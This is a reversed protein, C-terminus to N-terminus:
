YKVYGVNMDVNGSIGPVSGLSSYQWITVRGPGTYQYGLSPTYDRYQAIWVDDTSFQSMDIKNELWYKNAYIMFKYGNAEVISKFTKIIATLESSSLDGQTEGDEIDYAVPYDITYGSAELTKLTNVVRNAETRAESVNSAYSYRYVGISIGNKKANKANAYFQDDVTINSMTGSLIRLMAFEVGSEKVQKWDITGQWASVDIGLNQNEYVTFTITRSIVQGRKDKIALTFTHLGVGNTEFTYTNDSSYNQVTKSIGNYTETYRYEYGGYGQTANGTLTVQIGQSLLSSSVNSTLTGELAKGPDSIINIMCTSSIMQGAADRVAITYKYTGVMKATFGYTNVDSFEQVTRSIGNYTETFRYQYNGYGNEAKATLVINTDLYQNGTKDSTVTLKIMKDPDALVNFNLVMSTLNGSSDKLSITIKYTGIKNGIFSCENKTSYNQITTSKGNYTETFRYEYEGSGGKGEATLTVKEGSSVSSPQDSKVSLSLTEEKVTLTYVTSAVNGAGDRVAVTYTHSGKGKATFTYEKESSYGRVTTVKGKYTETYRYEYEGSGGKGEATLTVKEGSLVSSPQDSKVSLSLTEEKVTLTYVTSAVNGAGDRVAVTYTHSGKGKATFTYEKESSYGRVTTVKGKYTETYRYEYEGSGGKGEATLTVKEGSSVSSPQDSKVSLSLTEEKVTLTYTISTMNGAGDRVAVTYTHSGKGKATFTYKGESNYGRVTTVKGNYTETYRYEYEGSGGKGEATLTVKEGSSVSSPQDSKVSLSLTEEKVTLTYVTSAVNGAGDRVAVTYTHSGKGKAKFTYEKESNYGRVTTVKGKYTETYRYEYEGSGGKGEATLTVKEGSSVSSPQDSKVSLSLTEEKVTLTYVTSAVNGAGDRVAVTYTHSGKGKAKFTYEKESNYGRVTTVKGKYTETYRYEYEGSGGKGEATLTVKEGSSVSSPQDSKVSLSLTEEKVTLTYVTSAVNGAGDRVAVTYTHSGKGKAKFTYEKESNYGRVTTVKGKYTETYRYEYEGSGGKGEATLTVREGVDVINSTAWVRIGLAERKLEGAKIEKEADENQTIGKEDYIKEGELSSNSSFNNDLQGESKEEDKVLIEKERSLIEGDEGIAEIIFRYTGDKAPNFIYENVGDPLELREKEEESDESSEYIEMFSYQYVKETNTVNVQIAVEEGVNITEDEIVNKDKDKLIIEIDKELVEQDAAYSTFFMNTIVMTLIIFGAIFREMRKRM